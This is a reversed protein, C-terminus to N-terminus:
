ELPGIEAEVAEVLEGSGVLAIAADVDPKLARDHVLSPVVKRLSAIAAQTAPGALM